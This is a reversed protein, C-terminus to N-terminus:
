VKKNHSFTRTQELWITYDELFERDNTETDKNYNSNHIYLIEGESYSISPNCWCTESEIHNFTDDSIIHKSM